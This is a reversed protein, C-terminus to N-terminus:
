RVNVINHTALYMLIGWLLHYSAKQYDQKFQYTLASVMNVSFVILSVLEIM